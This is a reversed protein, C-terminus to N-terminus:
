ASRRDPGSVMAGDCSPINQRESELRAVGHPQVLPRILVQVGLRRLVEETDVVRDQVLQGGLQPLSGIAGLLAHDGLLDHVPLELLHRSHPHGVVVAKEEELRAEHPTSLMPSHSTGIGLMVGAM